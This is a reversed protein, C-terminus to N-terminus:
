VDGIENLTARLVKKTKSTVKFRDDIRFGCVWIISERHVLLPIRAREKSPVKLDIFYDKVKKHGKMGLPVFRDGPRLNRIVLPYSLRDADFFAIRKSAGM